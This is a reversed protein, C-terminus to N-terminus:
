QPLREIERAPEIAGMAVTLGANEHQIPELDIIIVWSIRIPWFLAYQRVVARRIDDQLNQVFHGIM